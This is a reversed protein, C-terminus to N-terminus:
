ENSGANTRSGNAESGELAPIVAEDQAADLADDLLDRADLMSMGAIAMRVENSGVLHQVRTQSSQHAVQHTAHLLLRKTGSLELKHFQKQSCQKELERFASLNEQQSQHRKNIKIKNRGRRGAPSKKNRVM